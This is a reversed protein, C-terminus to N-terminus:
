GPGAPQSRSRVAAAARDRDVSGGMTAAAGESVCERARLRAPFERSWANEQGLPPTGDRRGRAPYIGALPIRTQRGTGDRGKALGAASRNRASAVATKPNRLASNLHFLDSQRRRAVSVCLSLSLSLSPARRSRSAPVRKPASLASLASPGAGRRRFPSRRFWLGKFTGKYILLEMRASKEGMASIHLAGKGLAEM